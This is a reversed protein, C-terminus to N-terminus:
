RKEDFERQLSVLPIPHLIDAGTECSFSQEMEM